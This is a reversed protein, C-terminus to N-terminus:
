KKKPSNIKSPDKAFKDFTHQDYQYLLKFNNTKTTKDPSNNPYPPTEYKQKEAKKPEKPFKKDIVISLMDDLMKPLLNRIFTNPIGLYPNTNIEILWTRFDEDVLFDYGYLEFLNEKKDPNLDTRVSM